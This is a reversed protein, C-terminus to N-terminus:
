NTREIEFIATVRMVPGDDDRVQVSMDAPVAVFEKAMDALTQLAHKQVAELDPLVIGEDDEGIQGSLQLDFYYRRM